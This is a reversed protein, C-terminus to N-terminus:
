DRDWRTSVRGPVHHFVAAVTDKARGPGPPLKRLLRADPSSPSKVWEPERRDPTNIARNGLGTVRLAGDDASWETELWDRKRYRNYM